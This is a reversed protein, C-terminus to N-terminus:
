NDAFAVDCAQLWWDYSSFSLSMKHYTYPQAGGLNNM